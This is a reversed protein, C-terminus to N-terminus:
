KPTIKRAARVRAHKTAKLAVGILLLFGSLAYEEKKDHVSKPLDRASPLHVVAALAAATCLPAAVFAAVSGVCVGGVAAFFWLPPPPKDKDM